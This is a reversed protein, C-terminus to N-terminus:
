GASGDQQGNDQGGKMGRAACEIEVRADGQGLCPAAAAVETRRDEASQHLRHTHRAAYENQETEGQGAQRKDETNRERLLHGGAPPHRTFGSAVQSVPAAPSPRTLPALPREDAARDEFRRRWNAPLM